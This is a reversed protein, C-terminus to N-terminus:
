KKARQREQMIEFRRTNEKLPYYIGIKSKTKAGNAPPQAQSSGGAGNGSKPTELVGSDYSMFKVRKRPVKGWFVDDLLKLPRIVLTRLPIPTRKISQVALNRWWTDPKTYPCVAVCTLCIDWYEMVHPRLRYCTEWNIKYKEVGNHVVKDGMVISNTPCTTACKNCRKCYDEVGLDLPKDPVLPLDTLIPDGLHVRAGHKETILM